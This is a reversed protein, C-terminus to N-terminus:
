QYQISVGNTFNSAPGTAVIDRHWAQYHWTQGAMVSVLVSPTPTRTLDLVLSFDGNADAQLIQGPANYRGIAGTLCLNGESVTTGAGISQSNVFIGFQGPPLSSATLTMDNDAVLTSGDASIEGPVGSSNANAQCFPVGTTGGTGVTVGPNNFLTTVDGATLAGGYVQVDDIAGDLFEPITFGPDWAGIFWLDEPTNSANAGVVTGIAVGDVYFTVDNFLDMVVVVHHWQGPTITAPQDYDLVGHTTFRLNSFETVGLSWSGGPGDNSFIRYVQTGATTDPPLMDLNVWASLSLDNQLTSLPAGGAFIEVYSTAGDFQGATNTGPAAGAIGQTVGQYFGDQGNGSSDVAVVTTDDLRYHALLEVDSPIVPTIELDGSGMSTGWGGVRVYYDQGAMCMVTTSSQLGCADDRCGLVNLSGCTGDAVEIISDYNASCISFEYFGSQPANFVYWIDANYNTECDFAPVSTTSGSTDFFISGVTVPLAGACEDNVQAAATGALLALAAAALLPRHLTM